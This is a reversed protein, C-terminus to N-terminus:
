RAARGDTDRIVVRVGLNSEIWCIPCENPRPADMVIVAPQPAHGFLPALEARAQTERVGDLWGMWFLETEAESDGIGGDPPREDYDDPPQFSGIFTVYCEVNPPMGTRRTFRVEIDSHSRTSYLAMDHRPKRGAWSVGEHVGRAYISAGDAVEAMLDSPSNRRPRGGAAKRNSSSL